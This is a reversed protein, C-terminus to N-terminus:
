AEEKHTDNRPEPCTLTQRTISSLGAGTESRKIAGLFLCMQGFYDYDRKKWKELDFEKM